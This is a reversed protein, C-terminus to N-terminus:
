TDAFLTPGVQEVLRRNADESIRELLISWSINTEKRTPTSMIRFHMPIAPVGSRGDEMLQYFFDFREELIPGGAVLRGMLIDLALAASVEDLRVSGVPLKGASYANLAIATLDSVKPTPLIEIRRHVVVDGEGRMSGNWELWVLFARTSRAGFKTHLQRLRDALGPQGGPKQEFRGVLSRKIEDPRLPRPRPM